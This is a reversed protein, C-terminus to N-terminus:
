LVEGYLDGNFEKLRVNIFREPEINKYDELFIIGDVEPAEACSRGLVGNYEDSKDILIREVTGLRAKNRARIAAKQAKEIAKLRARKKNAPIQPMNFAPTGEEPSFSFIGVAIKQTRVFNELLAFDEDTEGPFGIMVTTRAWIGMESIKNFLKPINQAKRGMLALVNPSVHQVPVDLYNCIKPQSIITELLEQTIYQPYAYMIRLWFDGDINALEKLLEPLSASIDRGYGAVDQAVLILEKVGGNILIRAEELISNIKRSRYRGKISPIACYACASDCGEAVLIYAIHSNHLKARNIFLEHDFEDRRKSDGLLASEVENLNVACDVEPFDRMIKEKFRAAMCGCVILRKKYKLLETLVNINEKVADSIFGCTNLVIADASDIYPTLEVGRKDLIGQLLGSNVLNKDCGMTLLFIKM